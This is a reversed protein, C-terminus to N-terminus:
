KKSKVSKKAPTASVEVAEEEKVNGEAAVEIKVDEGVAVGGAEIVKNWKLDYDRRNITLKAEFAAKENGYADKVTGGYDIEVEVPRTVGRITLKGPAKGSKGKEIKFADAIFELTEHGKTAVDFFDASRLHKDRDPENTNISKAEVTAHIATLAGTKDDVEFTGKFTDFRGYVTSIVLHKVRFGVTTHSGDLEFTKAWLTSTELIGLICFVVLRMM